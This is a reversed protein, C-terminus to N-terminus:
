DGDVTREVITVQKDTGQFFVLSTVPWEVTDERGLRKGNVVVTGKDLWRRLESNSPLGVLAGERSQPCCFVDDRLWRLFDVAKM